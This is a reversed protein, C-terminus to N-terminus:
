INQLQHLLVIISCLKWVIKTKSANIKLGSFKSFYEITDLAVFLSKQSSDLTLSKDDAYQSLKHEKNLVIIGRINKNCTHKVLVAVIEACLISLYPSVPDGQRCGRQVTFQEFIFRSQLVSVKFNATLIEVWNIINM